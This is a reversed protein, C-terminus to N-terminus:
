PFILFIVDCSSVFLFQGCYDYCCNQSPDQFCNSSGCRLTGECQGDYHCHGENILCPNAVTCINSFNHPIADEFTIKADFGGGWFDYDTDFVVLMQPGLSSVQSRKKRSSLQVIMHKRDYDGGDFIRLYDYGYGDSLDFYLFELKVTQNENPANITWACETSYPYPSPYNPSKLTGNELDLWQNCTEFCCNTDNAYGLAIPCNKYGCKLGIHCQQDHFCHGENVRCPNTVTCFTALPDRASTKRIKAFFGTGVFIDSSFTVFM